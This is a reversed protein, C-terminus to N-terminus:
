IVLIVYSFSSLCFLKSIIKWHAILGQITTIEFQDGDCSIPSSGIFLLRVCFLAEAGLTDRLLHVHVNPRYMFAVERAYWEQGFAICYLIRKICVDGASM